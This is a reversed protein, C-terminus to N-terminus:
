SNFEALSCLSKDTGHTRHLVHNTEVLMRPVCQTGTSFTRHGM